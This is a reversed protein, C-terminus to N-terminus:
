VTFLRVVTDDKEEEKTVIKRHWFFGGIIRSKVSEIEITTM